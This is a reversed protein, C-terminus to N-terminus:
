KLYCPKVFTDTHVIDYVASYTTAVGGILGIAIVALNVLIEWPPINRLVDGISAKKHANETGENMQGARLFLYFLGPLVFTLLTITSGGVLNLVLGFRPISEGVFVVVVMVCTRSVARKWTFRHPLRLVEELEQNIPNFVIVLSLIVHLTILINTTQQIWETDISDIINSTVNNNGGYVLFGAMSVPTYLVIIIIYALIVAKTFEAPRKMDHQITPFAAHGGYSFMITGFALFFERFKLPPKVSTAEYKAGDKGIGVILLTVAVSTMIMACVVAPWFDKPSRLFTIPLMVAAVILVLICYDMEVSFFHELFTHINESALLLFVVSVGFLTLDICVSVIHKTVIGFAREAMAPYPKRCHSRYIPWRDQLITWCWGLQIGTYASLIAGLIILALGAWNSDIMAKPMAVVGGGAMEGVIFLGTVVTNLGNANEHRGSGNGYNELTYVHKKKSGVNHDM